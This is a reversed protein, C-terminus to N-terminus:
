TKREHTRKKNSYTRSTGRRVDNLSGGNLQSPNQLWQLKGQKM